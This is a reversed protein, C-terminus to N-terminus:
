LSAGIAWYHMFEHSLVWVIVSAILLLVTVIIKDLRTMQAECAGVAM